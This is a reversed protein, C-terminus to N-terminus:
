ENANGISTENLKTAHRYASKYEELQRKFLHKLARKADKFTAFYRCKDVEILLGERLKFINSYYADEILRYKAYKAKIM